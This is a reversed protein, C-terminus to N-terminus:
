ILGLILNYAIFGLILGIFCYIFIQLKSSKKRNNFAPESIFKIDKMDISPVTTSAISVKEVKTSQNIAVNSKKTTTVPKKNNVPKKAIPKKNNTKTSVPKKNTMSKASKVAVPKKTFGSPKKRNNQAMRLSRKNLKALVKYIYHRSSKDEITDFSIKDNKNM